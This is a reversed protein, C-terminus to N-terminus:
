LTSLLALLAHAEKVCIDTRYTDWAVAEQGVATPAADAAQNSWSSGLRKHAANNVQLATNM